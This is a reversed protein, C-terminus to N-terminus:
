TLKSILSTAMSFQRNENNVRNRSLNLIVVLCQKMYPQIKDALKYRIKFLKDFVSDLKAVCSTKCSFDTYQHRLCLNKM